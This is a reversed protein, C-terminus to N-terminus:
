PAISIASVVPDKKGGNKAFGITLEGDSVTVQYTKDLAAYQGVEQYISLGSEVVTGEMTIKMKRDKASKVEFEAFRLTVQYTGNPLVFRYSTPDVRYAQYLPDDTTGSVARSNFVASGGTYGWSGNWAQDAAWQAGKSDNYTGGGANARKACPIPTATPTPTLTPSPTITPTPTPTAEGSTVAKYANVRGYGFYPDWGPTYLDDASSEIVSRLESNSLSPQHALVLAAVGSVHAAAQSTGSRNMYGSGGSASWSTSYITDGPASVSIYDGYNSVPWRGDSANTATVAMVHEYAAPYTPTGSAGNGAAAVLLAGQAWAYNVADLLVQSQATGGLSLNIVSAGHDAAYIIGQAVNSYTGGLGADLVKVVLVQTDFGIGAVGTANDTAAAVIGAIHTGHGHDDTPDSDNNVYDWGAILQGDLDPHQFDAGSDVVAVIVDPDGTTVDWAQDAKVKPPAWQNTSYYTDDPQFNGRVLYDPEAYEVDSSRALCDVVRDVQGPPVSAVWTGIESIIAARHARCGSLASERAHSGVDDRFKVLVINDLRGLAASPLPLPHEVVVSREPMSESTSSARATAATLLSATLLGGAVVAYLRVSNV